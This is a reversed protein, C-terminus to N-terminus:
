LHLWGVAFMIGVLALWAVYGGLMAPFLTWGARLLAFVALVWVFTPVLAILTSRAFSSMDARDAGGSSVIWFGLPLNIPMTALLAALTRSRNRLVALGIILGISVLVPLYRRLM